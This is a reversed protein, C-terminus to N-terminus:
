SEAPRAGQPTPVAETRGKRPAEGQVKVAFQEAEVVGDYSGLLAPAWRRCHVEGFDVPAPGFRKSGRSKEVGIM